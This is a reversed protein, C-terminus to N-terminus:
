SAMKSERRLPGFGSGRARVFPTETDIKSFKDQSSSSKTFSRRETLGISNGCKSCSLTRRPRRKFAASTGFDFSGIKFTFDRYRDIKDHSIDIRLLSGGLKNREFSLCTELVKL